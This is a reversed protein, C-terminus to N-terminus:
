IMIGAYSTGYINATNPHQVSIWDTNASVVLFISNTITNLPEPQLNLVLNAGAAGEQITVSLNANATFRQLKIPLVANNSNSTIAVTINANGLGKQTEVFLNSTNGYKILSLTLNASNPNGFQLVPTLNAGTGGLSVVNATVNGSTFDETTYGSGNAFVTTGIIAGTGNVTVNANAAFGSGGEFTIYGNSYGSGTSTILVNALNYSTLHSVKVAVNDTSLYGTGQNIISVNDIAGTSNVTVIANANRGSGGEFIIYGNSYSSGADNVAITNIKYTLLSEVNAYVADGSGYGTGRNDITVSVISGDTNVTISANAAVGSGGELSIYGNSYGLGGDNININAVNNTILSEVNAYVSDGFSYGTGISNLNISLIAGTNPNVTINANAGTGTGGELSIYGNKYNQGTGRLLLKELSYTKLHAVSARVRSADALLYGLGRSNITVSVINGQGDVSVNANADYGNGGIFTIYGNSYGTGSSAINITAINYSVLHNVNAIVADNASYGTGRNNITIGVIAGTANVSVNANANRGAGGQFTIFGNAFGEAGDNITITNVNYTVLHQVNAVLTDTISYTDGRDNITTGVIHGTSNVLISANAGSGSGNEIIIFGNAYDSGRDVIQVNALNATSGSVFEVYVNDNAVFGHSPLNIYVISGNVDGVTYYNSFKLFIKNTKTETTVGETLMPIDDNIFDYEGFVKMGAPNILGYVAEKYQSFPENVRIVYSYNQYYDRDELYNFSSIMGDDNIFRGPYSYTGTIVTAVAQATGDGLATLNLTPPAEYGTGGSILTLETIKGITETSAVLTEGDGLITRVIVNANAGTTSIVNAKPLKENTYGAGGILHGPVEEFKVQTIAGNADVNVVNAAAGTGFGGSVNIFEIKDGIQYNSGGDIIEMRGLVGLNRVRTNAQVDLNPITSYNIGPSLLYVRNIPGTNAFIFSNVANVIGTNVNSSNLNSYVVNNLPTNAELDIISSIISYSNPHYTEDPNVAVNANAGSGGGGTILVFNSNVFGAGGFAFGIGNLNGTSVSSIVISGGTGTNSEIPVKTGAVYGAGSSLLTVSSIIGTFTNARLTRLNGNDFVSAIISDGSIFDKTQNSLKLEYVIIGNEYYTSVTEVIATAGSVSGTILASTFKEIDNFNNTEQDDVFVDSIRISKEVFWKGDSARLIDTKPYYFETKPIGFLVNLLFRISNETGKARYFDKAYKLVLSKDALIDKPLYKLFHDYLKDAFIDETIDIDNFGLLNKAREVTKGTQELYEYYKELFVIFNPHDNKVFFPAQSYVLNSIKNNTTM